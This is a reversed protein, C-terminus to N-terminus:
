GNAFFVESHRNRPQSRLFKVPRAYGSYLGAYEGGPSISVSILCKKALLNQSAIRQNFFIFRM